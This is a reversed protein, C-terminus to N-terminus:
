VFPLWNFFHFGQTQNLEIQTWASRQTWAHGCSGVITTWLVSRRKMHTILEVGKRFGCCDGGLVKVYRRYSTASTSRRRRVRNRRDHWISRILAIAKRLPDLDRHTYIENM